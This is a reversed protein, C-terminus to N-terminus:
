RSTTLVIVCRLWAPKPWHVGQNARMFDPDAIYSFADVLRLSQQNSSM